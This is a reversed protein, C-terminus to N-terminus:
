RSITKWLFIYERVFFDSFNPIFKKLYEFHNFILEVIKWISRSRKEVQQTTDFRPLEISEFLEQLWHGRRNTWWM